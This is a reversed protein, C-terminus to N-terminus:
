RPHNLRLDPAVTHDFDAIKPLVLALYRRGDEPAMLAAVKRVHAAIASECVARMEQVQRGAAALAAADCGQAAALADRAKTAEQILRCHEACTGAYAEHLERIAAFQRDDLHFDDRLWQMADGKMAAAHLSADSSLRYCLLGTAAAAFVLLAITSLLYRM